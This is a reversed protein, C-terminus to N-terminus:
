GFKVCVVVTTETEIHKQEISIGVKTFFSCDPSYVLAVSGNVSPSPLCGTGADILAVTTKNPFISEPSPLWDYRADLRELIMAGTIDSCLTFTYM